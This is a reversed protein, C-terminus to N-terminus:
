SGPVPELKNMRIAVVGSPKVNDSAFKTTVTMLKEGTVHPSDECNPGDFYAYDDYWYNTELRKWAPLTM